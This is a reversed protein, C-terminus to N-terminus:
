HSITIHSYDIASRRELRTTLCRLRYLAQQYTRQHEMYEQYSMGTTDVQRLEKVVNHREDM